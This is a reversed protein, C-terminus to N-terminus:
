AYVDVLGAPEVEREQQDAPESDGEGTGGRASAEDAEPEGANGGSVDADGLTMGLAGFMDRLRPLSQEILDRVQTSHSVFQVQTEGDIVQLKIDVPGLEPPNIHLRAQNISQNVMLVIRQGLVESWGESSVPRTLTLSVPNARAAVPKGENLASLGGDADDGGTLSEVPSRDATQLVTPTILAPDNASVLVRRGPGPEAQRLDGKNEALAVVPTERVFVLAEVEPDAVSEFEEDLEGAVSLPLSPPALQSSLTLSPSSPELSSVTLAVSPSSPPLSPPLSEGGPPLSADAAVGGGLNRALLVSFTLTVAFDEKTGSEGEAILDPSDDGPSRAVPLVSSVPSVPSTPLM